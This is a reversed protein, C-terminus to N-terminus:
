FTLWPSAGLGTTNTAVLSVLDTHTCTHRQSLAYGHRHRGAQGVEWGEVVACHGNSWRKKVPAPSKRGSYYIKRIM